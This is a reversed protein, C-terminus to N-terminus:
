VKNYHMGPKVFNSLSKGAAPAIKVTAVTKTM